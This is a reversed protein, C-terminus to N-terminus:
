LLKEKAADRLGREYGLEEATKLAQAHRSQQVHAYRHIDTDEEIYRAIRAEAERLTALIGREAGVGVKEICGPRQFESIGFHETAAAVDQFTEDCHFCTWTKM